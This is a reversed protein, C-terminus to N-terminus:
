HLPHAHGTLEIQLILHERATPSPSRSLLAPNGAFGLGGPGYITVIQDSRSAEVLDGRARNRKIYTHAGHSTAVETLYFTFILRRFSLAARVEVGSGARAGQVVGPEGLARAAPPRPYTWSVESRLYTPTCELYRTALSLLHRDERLARFADWQEHQDLYSGCEFNCQYRQEATDREEVRYPMGLDGDGYCTSVRAHALLSTLTDQALRLGVYYGDRELISLASETGHDLTLSV